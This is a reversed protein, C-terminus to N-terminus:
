LFLRVKYWIAEYNQSMCHVIFPPLSRTYMVAYTCVIYSCIFICNCWEKLFITAVRYTVCDRCSSTCTDQASVHVDLPHLRVSRLSPRAEEVGARASLGWHLAQLGRAGQLNYHLTERTSKSRHCSASSGCHTWYGDRRSDKCVWCMQGILSTMWLLIIGYLACWLCLTFLEACFLSLAATRFPLFSRHLYPPFNRTGSQTQVYNVVALSGPSHSPNNNLIPTPHSNPTLGPKSQQM